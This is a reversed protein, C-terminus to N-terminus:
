EAKGQLGVGPCTRAGPFSLPHGVAESDDLSQHLAVYLSGPALELLGTPFTLPDHSAGGKSNEPVQSSSGGVGLSVRWVGAHPDLGTRGTRSLGM